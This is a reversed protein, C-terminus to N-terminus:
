GTICGEVAAERERFPHLGRLPLRYALVAQQDNANIKELRKASTQIPLVTLSKAMAISDRGMVLVIGPENKQM